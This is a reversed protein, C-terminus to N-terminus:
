FNEEKRAAGLYGELKQIEINKETETYPIEAPQVRWTPAPWAPDTEFRASVHIHLQPVVNGFAATNIKVPRYAQQLARGAAAMEKVLQQKQAADLEFIERVNDVRPILYIWPYTKDSKLMVRCLPWDLIFYGSDALRSDLKFDM